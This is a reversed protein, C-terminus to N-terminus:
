STGRVRETRRVPLEPLLPEAPQRLVEPDFANGRCSLHGSAPMDPVNLPVRAGLPLLPRHRVALAGL